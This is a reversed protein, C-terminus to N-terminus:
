DKSRSFGCFLALQKNENVEVPMELYLKARQAEDSINFNMRPALTDFKRM